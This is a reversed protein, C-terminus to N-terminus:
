GLSDVHETHKGTAAAVTQCPLYPQPNREFRQPRLTRLRPRHQRCMLCIDYGQSRSSQASRAQVMTISAGKNRDRHRSPMRQRRRALGARGRTDQRLSSGDGVEDHKGQGGDRGSGGAHGHMHTDWTSTGSCTRVFHAHQNDPDGAQPTGFSASCVLSSRCHRALARVVNHWDPPELRLGNGYSMCISADTRIPQTHVHESRRKSKISNRARPPKSVRADCTKTRSGSHVRLIRFRTTQM